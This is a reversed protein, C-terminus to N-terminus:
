ALHASSSLVEIKGLVKLQAIDVSPARRRVYAIVKEMSLAAFMETTERAAGGDEGATESKLEFLVPRHPQGLSSVVEGDKSEAMARRWLIYFRPAWSGGTGFQVGSIPPGVGPVAFAYLLTDCLVEIIYHPLVM